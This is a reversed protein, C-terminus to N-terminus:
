AGGLSGTMKLLKGSKSIASEEPIGAQSLIRSYDFYDMELKLNELARTVFRNERGLPIAQDCYNAPLKKNESLVQQCTERLVLGKQWPKMENWYKTEPILKVEGIQVERNKLKDSKAQKWIENKKRLHEQKFDKDNALKQKLRKYRNWRVQNPTMRDLEMLLRSAGILNLGRAEQIIMGFLEPDKKEIEGMRYGYNNWFWGGASALSIVILLSVIVVGLKSKFITMSIYKAQIV